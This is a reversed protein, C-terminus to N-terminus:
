RSRSGSSLLGIPSELNDAGFDAPPEFQALGAEINRVNRESATERNFGNRTVGNTVPRAKRVWNRWGADWDSLVRATARAHDKFAETERELDIGKPAESAAWKRMGETLSFDDPLPTLPKKGRARGAISRRPKEPESSIAVNTAILTTSSSSQLTPNYNADEEVVRSSGKARSRRSQGSKVGGQSCKKKWERQKREEKALRPHILLSEDKPHPKFCVGVMEWLENMHEVSVSCLRALRSISAPISGEIWCISILTIYAGRAELTMAIVNADSLFDAAYWQFAPSRAKM